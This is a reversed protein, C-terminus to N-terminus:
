RRLMRVLWDIEVHFGEWKNTLGFYRRGFHVGLLTGVLTAVITVFSTILSEM